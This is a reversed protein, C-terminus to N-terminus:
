NGSRRVTVSRAGSRCILLLPAERVDAVARERMRAGRDEAREVPAEVLRVALELLGAGAVRERRPLVERPRALRDVLLLRQELALLAAPHELELRSAMSRARIM